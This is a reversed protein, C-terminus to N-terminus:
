EGKLLSYKAYGESMDSVIPVGKKRLRNVCSSLRYVGLEDLAMRGTIYPHEELYTFVKENQSMYKESM